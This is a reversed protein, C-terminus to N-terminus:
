RTGGILFSRLFRRVIQWWGERVPAPQSATRSGDDLVLEGPPAVTRAPLGTDPRWPDSEFFEEVPLLPRSPPREARATPPAVVLLAAALAAASPLRNINM